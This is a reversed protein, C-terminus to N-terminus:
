RPSPDKYGDTGEGLATWAALGGDLWYVRPFRFRHAAEWAPDRDEPPPVGDENYFVLPVDPDTPLVDRLDSIRKGHIPMAGPLHGPRYLSDPRLDLLCASRGTELWVVLTEPELALIRGATEAEPRACGALVLAALALRRM